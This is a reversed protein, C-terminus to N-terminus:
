DASLGGGNKPNPIIKEQNFWRYSQFFGLYAFILVFIVVLIIWIIKWPDNEVPLRTVKPLYVGTIKVPLNVWKDPLWGRKDPNDNLYFGWWSFTSNPMIGGKRCMSMAFLSLLENENIQPLYCLEPYFEQLQDPRNTLLYIKGKGVQRVARQYYDHLDLNLSFDTLYDGLRVHLFYAHDLDPYKNRLYRVEEATPCIRSVIEHRIHDFNKYGQFNGELITPRPHKLDIIPNADAKLNKIYHQYNTPKGEHLFEEYFRRYKESSHKNDGNITEYIRFSCRWHRALALGTALQFLRNGLGGTLKVTVYPETM